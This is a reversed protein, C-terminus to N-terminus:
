VARVALTIVTDSTSQSAGAVLKIFRLGAIVALDAIPAYKSAATTISYASGSGNEVAVYTGDIHTSAQLSLSTGDFTSPLFFGVLELGGLDIADSVTQGNAITASLDYFKDSQYHQASTM